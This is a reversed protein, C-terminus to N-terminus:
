RSLCRRSKQVTGDEHLPAVPRQYVHVLSTRRLLPHLHLIEQAM